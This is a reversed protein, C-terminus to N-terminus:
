CIFLTSDRQVGLSTSVYTIQFCSSRLTYILMTKFTLSMLSTLVDRLDPSASYVDYFEGYLRDAAMVRSTTGERLCVGTGSDGKKQVSGPLGKRDSQGASEVM